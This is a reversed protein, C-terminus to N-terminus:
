RDLFFPNKGTRKQIAAAIEDEGLGFCELITRQLKTLPNHLLMGNKTKVTKIMRLEDFIQALSMSKTDMYDKLKHHVFTRLILGIFAFTKKSPQCSCKSWELSRVADNVKKEHM